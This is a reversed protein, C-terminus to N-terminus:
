GKERGSGPSSPPEPPEGPLPRLRVMTAGEGGYHAGATSFSAVFPMKALAAQVTQRLQGIGRGHIVRVELIGKERCAELYSLVVEKVDQPRFSHLDLEGSPPLEVPGSEDTNSTPNV